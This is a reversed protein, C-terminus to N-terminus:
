KTKRLILFTVLVYNPSKLYLSLDMIKYFLVFFAFNKGCLFLTFALFNRFILYYLLIMHFICPKKVCKRICHFLFYSERFYDLAPRM